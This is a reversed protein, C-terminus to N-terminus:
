TPLGAIFRRIVAHVPPPGDLALKSGVVDFFIRQDGLSVFMAM